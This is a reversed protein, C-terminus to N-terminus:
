IPEVTYTCHVGWFAGVNATVRVKNGPALPLGNWYFDIFGNAVTRVRWVTRVVVNAPTVESVIMDIGGVDAWAMIGQLVLRFGAGPAAILDFPAVTGFNTAL